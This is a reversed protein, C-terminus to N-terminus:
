LRAADEFLGFGYGAALLKTKAQARTMGYLRAYVSYFDEQRLIDVEPGDDAPDKETFPELQAINDALASPWNSMDDQAYRKLAAVILARTAGDVEIRYKSPTYEM